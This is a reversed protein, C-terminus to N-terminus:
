RGLLGFLKIYTKIFPTRLLDSLTKNLEDSEKQLLESTHKWRNRDTELMDYNTPWEKLEASLAEFNKKWNDRDKELVEYNRKWGERDTELLEYNGRWEKLEASLAEFNKKWNDRDKELVEYNRKWGERDTELLEYNGRWEKLEASLAEFNTKWNERDKEAAEYSRRWEESVKSLAELNSKWNDRDTELIQYNTRWFSREESVEEYAKRWAAIQFSLFGLRNSAHKGDELNANEVTERDKTVFLSKYEPRRKAALLGKSAAFVEDTTISTICKPESYICKWFCRYCAMPHWVKKWCDSPYSFFRDAFGGGLIVIAPTGVAVALQLPGTENGIFLSAKKYVAAQKRLDQDSLTVPAFDRLSDKLTDILKIDMPGGSLIIQAQLETQLRKALLSFKEVPWRRIDAGAGPFLIVSPRKADISHTRFFEEAFRLDEDRIWVEPMVMENHTWGLTEVLCMNRTFEPVFEDTQQIVVSYFQENALRVLQNGDQDLCHFGIRIPAGTARVIADSVPSRSYMANIVMDYRARELKHDLDLRYTSDSTYKDFDFSIISNCYPANEILPTATERALLTLEQDRFISRLIKLTPLFVIFDGIADTRLVLVKM